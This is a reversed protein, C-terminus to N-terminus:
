GPPRPKLCFQGWTGAGLHSYHFGGQLPVCCQVLLDMISSSDQSQARSMSQGSESPEFLAASDSAYGTESQTCTVPEDRVHPTNTLRVRHMKRSKYPSPDMSRCFERPNTKQTKGFRSPFLCPVCRVHGDSNSLKRKCDQVECVNQKIRPKTSKRPM